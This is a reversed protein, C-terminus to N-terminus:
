GMLPSSESIDELNLTEPSLLPPADSHIDFDSDSNSNRTSHREFDSINSNDSLPVIKKLYFFLLSVPYVIMLSAIFILASYGAIVFEEAAAHLSSGFILGMGGVAMQLGLNTLSPVLVAAVAVGLITANLAGVTAITVGAGSPIAMLMSAVLGPWNGRSRMEANPWALGTPEILPYVVLGVAFSFGAIILAGISFNRLSIFLISTDRVLTGFCIGMVPYTLPSILLAAVVISSNNAILGICCVMAAICCLALFDFTLHIERDISQHIEEFCVREDVRYERSPPAKPRMLPISSQLAIIDIFGYADGVGCAKLVDLVAATHKAMVRCTFLAQPEIHDGAKLQNVELVFECGKLANLITDSHISPIGIYLLRLLPM